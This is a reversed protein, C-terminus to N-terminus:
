SGGFERADVLEIFAKVNISLQRSSPYVAFLAQEPTAYGELVHKLTGGALDNQIISQPVLAIGLGAIAANLIMNMSEGALRPQVHVLIEEGNPDVLRWKDDSLSSSHVIAAHSILDSHDVPDGHAELYEPSACLIRRNSSLKRAVLSSDRLRGFRFALDIRNEVLDVYTDSLLLEIRTDPYTKMYTAVWRAFVGGGFAAPAAIRLTGKPVAVTEDVLQNAATLEDM